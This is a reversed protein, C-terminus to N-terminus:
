GGRSSSQVVVGMNAEENKLKKTQEKEHGQRGKCDCIRLDGWLKDEQPSGAWKERVLPPLM